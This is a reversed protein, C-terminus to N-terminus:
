MASLGSTHVMKPNHTVQSRSIAAAYETTKMTGEDIPANQKKLPELEDYLLEYVVAHCTYL